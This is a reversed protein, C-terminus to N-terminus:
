VKHLVKLLVIGDKLQKTSKLEEQVVRLSNIWALFANELDVSNTTEM